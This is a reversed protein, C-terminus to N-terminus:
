PTDLRRAAELYTDPAPKGPLGLEQATVGDVRAEFLHAIGAAELVLACNRSSSVVAVRVGQERLWGVLAVSGPYPSVGQSLLEHVVVNKRNGLGHVTVADAEDDETGEPLTIGRSALFDRVGDYRPKGDVYPLYDETYDFPTFPEGTRDTHETLFADFM